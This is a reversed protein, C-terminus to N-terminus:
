HAIHFYLIFANELAFYFSIIYKNSGRYQYCPPPKSISISIDNEAATMAPTTQWRIQLHSSPLLLRYDAQNLTVFLVYSGGFLQEEKPTRKPKTHLYENM